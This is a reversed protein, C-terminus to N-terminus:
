SPSGADRARVASRMWRLSREYRGARRVSSGPYRCALGGRDPRGGLRGRPALRGARVQGPRGIAPEPAVPLRVEVPGPPLALM